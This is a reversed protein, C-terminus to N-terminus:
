GTSLQDFVAVALSSLADREVDGVLAYSLNEDQWYFSHSPGDSSYSFEAMREGTALPTSRVAFLTIRTGTADEYMFQAAPGATASLLRGGVLEFGNGSLDPATLARGLRNSLWRLLLEENGAAIEVPRNQDATFVAHAAIAEGVLGATLTTQAEPQRDRLFWGAAVGGALGVAFLALAAAILAPRTGTPAASLNAPATVEPLAPTVDQPFLAEIAANQETWDAVEAAADPNDDLWAQVRVMDADSLQGDVFAHLMEVPLPNDNDNTPGTM